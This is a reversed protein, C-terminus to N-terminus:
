CIVVSRKQLFLNFFFFIIGVFILAMYMKPLLYMNDFNIAKNYEKKFNKLTKKTIIGQSKQNRFM